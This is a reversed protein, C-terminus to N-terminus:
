TIHSAACIAAGAVVKGFMGAISIFPMLMIADANAGQVGTCKKNMNVIHATIITPIIVGDTVGITSM